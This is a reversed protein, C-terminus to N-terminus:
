KGIKHNTILSAIEHYGYQKALMLATKADKNQIDPDAGYGLLLQVTKSSNKEVACHLATYQYYGNQHNINAGKNLLIQIVEPDHNNDIAFYLSSRNVADTAGADLLAIILEIIKKNKTDTPLNQISKYFHDNKNLARYLAKNKHNIVFEPDIPMNDVCLLCKMTECFGQEVIYSLAKHSKPHINSACLLCRVMKSYRYEAAIDLPTYEYQNHLNINAGHEILLNAIIINENRVALHLPTNGHGDNQLNVYAGNALLVETMIIFNNVVAIHLPSLSGYKFSKNINIGDVNLLYRVLALHNEHVAIHLASSHNTDWQNPKCVLNPDTGSEILKKVQELNGQYAAEHLPDITALPETNDAGYAILLAQMDKNNKEIAYQIPTKQLINRPSCALHYQSSILSVNLIKQALDYMDSHTGGPYAQESRVAKFLAKERDTESVSLPNAYIIQYRGNKLCSYFVKSVRMLINKEKPDCHAAIQVITEDPFWFSPQIQNSQIDTTSSYSRKMGHISNNLCICTLTFLTYLIKQM